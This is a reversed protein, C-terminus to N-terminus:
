SDEIYELHESLGLKKFLDFIPHKPFKKLLQMVANNWSKDECWQDSIPFRTNKSVSSIAKITDEHFFSILSRKAVEAFVNLQETKLGLPYEYHRLHLKIRNTGLYGCGTLRTPIVLKCLIHETDVPSFSRKNISILLKDGNKELGMAALVPKSLKLLSKTFMKHIEHLRTDNESKSTSKSGYFFSLGYKLYPGGYVSLSETTQNIADIFLEDLDAIILAALFLQREKQDPTTGIEGNNGHKLLIDRLLKVCISYQMGNEVFIDSFTKEGIWQLVASCANLLFLRYGHITGNSCSLLCGEYLVSVYTKITSDKDSIEDLFKLFLIFKSKTCPLEFKHIISNVNKTQLPCDHKNRELFDSFMSFLIPRGTTRVIILALLIYVLSEDNEITDREMRTYHNAKGAPKLINSVILFLPINYTRICSTIGYMGNVMSLSKIPIYSLGKDTSSIDLVRCFSGVTNNIM